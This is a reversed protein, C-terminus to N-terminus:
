YSLEELAARGRKELLEAFREGARSVNDLIRMGQEAYRPLRDRFEELKDPYESALVAAGVGALVVGATKKGSLLLVLGTGVTGAVVAMKWNEM